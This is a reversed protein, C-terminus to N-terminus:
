RLVREVARELGVARSAKFLVADGDALFEALFDGAAVADEFFHAASASLGSAVAGAAIERANGQV